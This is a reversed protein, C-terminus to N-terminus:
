NPFIGERGMTRCHVMYNINETIFYNTSEAYFLKDQFPINVCLGLKVVIATSFYTPCWGLWIISSLMALLPCFSM